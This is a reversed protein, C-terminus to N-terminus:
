GKTPRHPRHYGAPEFPALKELWLSELAQLDATPDYDPTEAPALTDLPAWKGDNFQEYNGTAGQRVITM